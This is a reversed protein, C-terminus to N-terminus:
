RRGGVGPPRDQETVRPLVTGVMVARRSLERMVKDMELSDPTTRAARRVLPMLTPIKQMGSFLHYMMSRGLPTQAILLGAGGALEKASGHEIGHIMLLGGLWPHHGLIASIFNEHKAPDASIREAIKAFGRLREIGDRGILAQLNEAHDTIYERMARPGANKGTAKEISDLMSKAAVKEIEPRADAGMIKVFAELGDKNNGEIIAKARDYFKSPDIGKRIDDPTMGPFIGKSKGLGSIPAINDRYFDDAVKRSRIFAETSMGAERATIAAQDDLEKVMMKLQTQTAKDRASKLSYNIATRAATYESASIPRPQFEGPHPFVSPLVNGEDLRRLINNRMEEPLDRLARGGVKTDMRAKVSDEHQRILAEHDIRAADREPIGLETAVKRAVAQTTDTPAVGARRTGAITDRAVTAMPEYDFGEITRGGARAVGYNATSKESLAEYHGLFKEKLKSLSPTLDGVMDKLMNVASNYANKDALNKAAYMVGSGVSGLLGGVIAGLAGEAVRSAEEPKANFQTASFAAGSAATRATLGLRGIMAPIATRAAIAAGVPSLASTALGIGLVTGMVDGVRAVVPHKANQETLQEDFENIRRTLEKATDPSVQELAAQVPGLAVNRLGTGMNNFLVDKAQDVEALGPVNRFPGEQLRKLFAENDDGEGPPSPKKLVEKDFAQFDEPTLRRKEKVVATPAVESMGARRITDSIYNKTEAPMQDENRGRAIWKDVNGPGWNYAALADDWNGYKDFMAGLYRKGGERNQAEDTPDVGLGKATEPMLQMVGTAGKPSTKVKGNKDLHEDGSETLAVAGVMNDLADKGRPAPKVGQDQGQGDKRGPIEVYIGGDPAPAPKGTGIIPPPASPAALSPDAAPPTVLAPIPPGGVANLMDESIGKM